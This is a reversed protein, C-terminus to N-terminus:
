GDRPSSDAPLDDAGEVFFTVPALLAAVYGYVAVLDGVTIAGDAAMRAAIWTVLALFLVPLCAGLAQVWSTLSAVRYGDALLAQSRERYRRALVPKGGVGNLVHLGTVVDM